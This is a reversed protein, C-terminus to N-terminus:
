FRYVKTPTVCAHLKIDTPLIDSIPEKLAEFLSLGVFQCGPSCKRMFRDYFGGGYGVRHGREDFCLLPVFVLDLKHAAIVKGHSPEPIGWPSIQLQKEDTFLIHKIDTKAENVKPIACQGDIGLIKEWMGYTNIEKFKEIPLFLSIIKGTVPFSQLALNIIQSSKEQLDHPSLVQRRELYLKRLEKKQM